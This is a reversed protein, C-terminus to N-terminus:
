AMTLVGEHELLAEKIHLGASFGTLSGDAGIVRHCPVIIAIPNAGNATGVARVSKPKGIRQAIERYSCTTGYPIHCLADWVERQFDSGRPDLPLDFAKREGAFYESLQDEAANLIDHGADDAPLGAQRLRHGFYLGALGHASVLLVLEGIGTNGTRAAVVHSFDKNM